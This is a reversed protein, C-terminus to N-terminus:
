DRPMLCGTPIILRWSENGDLLGIPRAVEADVAQASYCGAESRQEHVRQWILSCLPSTASAVDM